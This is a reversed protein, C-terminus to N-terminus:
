RGHDALESANALRLEQDSVVFLADTLPHPQEHMDRSVLGAFTERKSFDPTWTVLFDRNPIAAFLVPTKLAERVRKMFRPLMLRAADYGDLTACAYFAGARSQAGPEIALQDSLGELNAVAMQEVTGRPLQWSDLQHQLLTAYRYAQDMVCVSMLGALFETHVIDPFTKLYDVPELQLRLSSRVADFTAKGDFPPAFGHEILTITDADRHEAPLDKVQLYINRLFVSVTGIQLSLPDDGATVTWDPHSAALLSVVHRAFSGDGLPDAYAVLPQLAVCAAGM